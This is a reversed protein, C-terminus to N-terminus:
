HSGTEFHFFPFVFSHLYLPSFNDPVNLAQPETRLIALLFQRKLFFDILLHWTTKASVNMGRSSVVTLVNYMNVEGLPQRHGKTAGNGM